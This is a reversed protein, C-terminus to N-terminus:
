FRYASRSEVSRPKAQNVKLTRGDMDKGNLGSIAARAESDDPMEVFGFGRSRNTHRDMVVEASDVKGFREFARQLEESDTSYSLNGVYIKM